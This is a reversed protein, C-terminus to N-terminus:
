KLQPITFYFTSGKLEESDVWIRGGHREVIRKCISLGIGTGEYEERTHLRTFVKFIKKQHEPSIGIGNDSVSIKWEGELNEVDVRIEPPREGHFKIANSLLNQFLQEIQSPDAMVRPLTNRTIKVDNEEISSKLTVLVSDLITEMDTEKLETKETNLRSFTLLDDILDKMRRAGDVIFNIYDNADDDLRNKYRKELLQTFSAVMRLPEQLDHSAIYAFQELDANSTELKHVTKELVDKTRKLELNSIQLKERLRHEKDLLEQMYKEAMKLQTIDQVIAISGIIKGNSDKIPVASVLQTGPTGDLREIEIIADKTTEGQLAKTLPMEESSIKEGTNGWWCKYRGYEDLSAAIHVEGGWIEEGMDNVFVMGGHEDTIWLGVPLNDIITQLRGRQEDAKKLLLELKQQTNKLKSIDKFTVVAGVFEGNNIIPSGSVSGIFELPKDLRKIKMETNSFTQHQKVWASPLQMPIKNEYEDFLEFIPKLEDWTYNVYDSAGFGLMKRAVHNMFSIQDNKDIIILGEGMSSLIAEDRQAINELVDKQEKLENNAIQLKRTTSQLEENAKKLKMTLQHEKELMDKMHEETKKLETIDHAVIIAEVPISDEYTLSINFFGHIITGDKKKLKYEISNSVEEGTAYKKLRDQLLVRSDEDLIDLPNMSLLEERTYGLISCMADNVSLFKPGRLDVEYIVSPAIKILFNSKKSNKPTEDRKKVKGM